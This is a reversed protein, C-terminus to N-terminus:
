GLPIELWIEGLVADDARRAVAAFVVRPVLGSLAAAIVVSAAVCLWRSTVAVALLARMAMALYPTAPAAAPRAATSVVAVSGVCGRGHMAERVMVVWGHRRSVVLEVSPVVGQRGHYAVYGRVAGGGGSVHVVRCVCGHVSGVVRVWMRVCRAAFRAHILRHGGLGGVAVAKWEGIQVANGGGAAAVSRVVQVRPVRVRMWRCPRTTHPHSDVVLHHLAVLPRVIWRRRIVRLVSVGKWKKRKKERAKSGPSSLAVHCAFLVLYVCLLPSVVFVWRLLGYHYYKVKKKSRGEVAAVVFRLASQPAACQLRCLLALTQRCHCTPVLEKWPLSMRVRLLGDCRKKRPPVMYGASPPPPRSPYWVFSVALVFDGARVCSSASMRLAAVAVPVSLPRRPPM